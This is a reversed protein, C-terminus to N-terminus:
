RIGKEKPTEKKSADIAQQIYEEAAPDLPQGNARNLSMIQLAMGVNATVATWDKKGASGAQAEKEFTATTKDNRCVEVSPCHGTADLACVINRSVDIEKGSSLKRTCGIEAYCLKAQSCSAGGGNIKLIQTKTYECSSLDSAFTVASFLLIVLSFLEKSYM